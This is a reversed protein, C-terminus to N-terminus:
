ERGGVGIDTPGAVEDGPQYCGTSGKVVPRQDSFWQVSFLNSLMM